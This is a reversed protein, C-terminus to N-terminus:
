IYLISIKKTQDMIDFHNVPTYIENKGKGWDERNKIKDFTGGGPHPTVAVIYIGPNLDM